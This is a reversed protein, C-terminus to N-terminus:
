GKLDLKDSGTLIENCKSDFAFIEKTTNAEWKHTSLPCSICLYTGKMVQQNLGM